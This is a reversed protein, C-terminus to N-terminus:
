TELNFKGQYYMIFKNQLFKPFKPRKVRLDMEPAVGVSRKLLWSAMLGAGWMSSSGM